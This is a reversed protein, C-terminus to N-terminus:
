ASTVEYTTYAHNHPKELDSLMFGNIDGGIYQMFLTRMDPVHNLVAVRIRDKSSRELQKWNSKGVTLHKLEVRLGTLAKTDPVYHYRRMSEFEKFTYETIPKLKPKFRFEVRTLPSLSKVGYVDTLQKSKDYQCVTCKATAAGYYLTTDVRQIRQSTPPPLLFGEHLPMPYDFAIDLRKVAWREPSIMNFIELAEPSPSSPNFSLMANYHRWVYTNKPYMLLSFFNPKRQFYSYQFYANSKRRPFRAKLWEVEEKSFHTVLRYGDKVINMQKVDKREGEAGVSPKRKDSLESRKAVSM